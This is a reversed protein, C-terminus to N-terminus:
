PRQGAAHSASSRPTGFRSECTRRMTPVLTLWGYETSTSPTQRRSHTPDRASEALLGEIRRGVAAWVPRRRPATEKRQPAAERVYKRVTLRSIGFAKAVQRQSRGEVLVQHRIVHVQDM